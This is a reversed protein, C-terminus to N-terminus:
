ASADPAAEITSRTLAAYALPLVPASDPWHVCPGGICDGDPLTFCTDPAPALPQVLSFTVTDDQNHIRRLLLGDMTDSEDATLTVSGGLRRVLIGIVVLAHDLSIDAM